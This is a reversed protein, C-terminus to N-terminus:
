AGREKAERDSVPPRPTWGLEHFLGPFVADVHFADARMAAERKMRMVENPNDIVWGVRETLAEVDRVPFLLGNRGHEVFEANDQWESAIVPIGAIMADLIVGPFGEGSYHTPFLMVDHTVLREHVMEPALAGHYRVSPHAGEMVGDFWASDKAAVPGFIDLTAVPDAHGDNIRAVAEVALGVGKEPILRSLFVLRLPRQCPGSCQRNMPFRRFNPLLRVNDLGAERLEGLMRRTQVYVGDCAQLSALDGPRVRLYGPLWGGVVLYHLRIGRRRKWAEYVPLLFRLGRSGPMFVLDSCQRQARLLTILARLATRRGGGTDIVTVRDAGLRRRLEDIVVRTRLIQGDAGLRRGGVHGAVAVRVDAVHADGPLSPTADIGAHRASM